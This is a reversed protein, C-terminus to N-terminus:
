VAVMCALLQPAKVDRDDALAMLHSVLHGGRRGLAVEHGIGVVGSSRRSCRTTLDADGNTLGEGRLDLLRVVNEPEGVSGVEGRHPRAMGRLCGAVAGSPTQSRYSGPHATPGRVWRDSTGARGTRAAHRAASHAARRRAFLSSRLAVSPQTSTRPSHQANSRGSM